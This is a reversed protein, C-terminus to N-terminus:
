PAQQRMHDAVAQWARQRQDLPLDLANLAAEIAGEVMAARKEDIAALRSDIDLRAIKDLVSVSRDLSREYLQVEAKIQEGNEGSYGLAQLQGVRETLLDKWRIVEGAMQALATLPDEVPGIDLDDLVRRLKREASDRAAKDKARPSAGGHLKCREQGNLPFRKCTEDKNRLKAGCKPKNSPQYGGSRNRRAQQEDSM